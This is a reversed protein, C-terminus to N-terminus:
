QSISTPALPYSALIRYHSSIYDHVSQYVTLANLEFEHSFFQSASQLSLYEPQINGPWRAITIHPIQPRQELQLSIPPQGVAHRVTDVIKKFAASDTLTIWLMGENPQQRTRVTQFQLQCESLSAATQALTKTLLPLQTESINGFFAITIHWKAAPIWRLRDFNLEASARQGIQLETIYAEIHAQWAAPLPAGLFLRLTNSNM